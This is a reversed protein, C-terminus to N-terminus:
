ERGVPPRAKREHVGKGLESRKVVAKATILRYNIVLRPIKHNPLKLVVKGLFGVFAAVADCERISRRHSGRPPAYIFKVGSVKAEFATQPNVERM